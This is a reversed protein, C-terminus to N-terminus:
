RPSIPPWGLMRSLPLSGGRIVSNKRPKTTVLPMPWFAKSMHRGGSIASRAKRGKSVLPMPWFAKSMHRGGRMASTRAKRPSLLRIGLERSIPGGRYDEPELPLTMLRPHDKLVSPAHDPRDPMYYDNHESAADVADSKGVIERAIRAAGLPKYTAQIVLAAGGSALHSAYSGVIAENVDARSLRAKVAEEDGGDASIVRVSNRPFGEWRLRNAVSEAKTTDAYLRTIVTTM